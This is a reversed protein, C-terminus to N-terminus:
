GNVVVRYFIAESSTQSERIIKVVDGPVLNMEKIAPDTEYISPLQNLSINYKKLLDSREQESLKIHKPIFIHKQINPEKDEPM